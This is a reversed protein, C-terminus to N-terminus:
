LSRLTPNWPRNFKLKQKKFQFHGQDNHQKLLVDITHKSFDTKRKKKESCILCVCKFFGTAKQAKKLTSPTVIRKCVRELVTQLPFSPCCCTSVSSALLSFRSETFTQVLSNSEKADEPLRDDAEGQTGLWVFLCGGESSVSVVKKYTIEM